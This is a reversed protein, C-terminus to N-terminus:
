ALSCHVRACPMIHKLAESSRGGDHRGPGPQESQGNQHGGGDDKQEQVIGAHALKKVPVDAIPGLAPQEERGDSEKDCKRHRARHGEGSGAVDARKVVNVDATRMDM